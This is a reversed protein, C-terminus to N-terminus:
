TSSSRKDSADAALAVWYNEHRGGRRECCFDKGFSPRLHRCWCGSIMDLRGKALTILLSIIGPCTVLKCLFSSFYRHTINLIALLDCEYSFNGYLTCATSWPNIRSSLKLCGINLVVLLSTYAVDGHSEAWGFAICGTIKLGICDTHSVRDMCFPFNLICFLCLIHSIHMFILIYTHIIYAHVSINLLICFIFSLFEFFVVLKVRTASTSQLSILQGSHRAYPMMVLRGKTCSQQCLCLRCLSPFFFLNGCSDKWFSKCMSLEVEPSKSYSMVFSGQGALIGRSFQMPLTILWASPAIFFLRMFCRGYEELAYVLKDFLAAIFMVFLWPFDYMGLRRTSFICGSCNWTSPCLWSASPAVNDICQVGAAAFNYDLSQEFSRWSQCGFQSLIDFKSKSTCLKRLLKFGGRALLYTWLGAGTGALSAIICSFSKKFGRFQLLSQVMNDPSSNPEVM